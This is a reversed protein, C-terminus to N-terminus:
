RAGGAAQAAFLTLQERARDLEDQKLQDPGYNLINRAISGWSEGAAKAQAAASYKEALTVRDPSEFSVDITDNVEAGEARLAKLLAAEAGLKVFALRRECKFVHGKETNQAGAASQNAADPMLMPLPTKTVASLERVDEKAAQLMPGVDTQQSEWVDVGPPLEWLTGPAPEFISAYDIQNGQDDVQPLPQGSTSKLARQRFAQIAMTSMRWLIGRNIRNILDLHPEYEGVGGPNNYVVIPPEGDTDTGPGAPEWDDTMMRSSLQRLAGTTRSMPRRFKQRRGVSWVMAYDYGEDIDRWWRVAARVRWPQLPDTAVCMTQPSDATVIAGGDSDTWVTLYSEAFDLGYEVWTRIVADMRNDRWIRQAQVALDSDSSGGITIGNPIIRDAVSDRILLAWNTRAERQFAKWAARTNRGAEPLPADGSSYRSLLLVRARREDARRALHPLWEEPTSAM